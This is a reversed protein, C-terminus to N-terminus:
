KNQFIINKARIIVAGSDQLVGYAEKFSTYVEIEMKDDYLIYTIDGKEKDEDIKEFGYYKLRKNIEKNNM